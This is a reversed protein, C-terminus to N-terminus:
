DEEFDIIEINEGDLIPASNMTKNKVQYIVGLIQIAFLPTMAVM